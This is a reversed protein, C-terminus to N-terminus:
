RESWHPQKAAEAVQSGYRDDAATGKKGFVCIAIYKQNTHGGKAWTCSLLDYKECVRDFTRKQEKNFVAIFTGSTSRCEPLPVSPKGAYSFLGTLNGVSCCGPLSHQMNM